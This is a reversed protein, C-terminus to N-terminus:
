SLNYITGARKLSSSVAGNPQTSSGGLRAHSRELMDHVETSVIVAFRELDHHNKTPTPSFPRECEISAAEIGLLAFAILLSLPITGWQWDCAYVIPIACLTLLLFSRLHAVYVYPLPTGQIRELGGMPVGLGQISQILQRYMAAEMPSDPLRVGPSAGFASHVAVEGLEILTLPRHKAEQVMELTAADGFVGDCMSAFADARSDSNGWMHLMLAVPFAVALECLQDRARQDVPGLTANAALAIDRCHIIVWGCLQRAEYHRVAARNLRFVLLFSLCSLVLAFATKGHEFPECAGDDAAYMRYPTFGCAFLLVVLMPQWIRGLGRNRVDLIVSVWEDKSYLRTARAPRSARIASHRSDASSRLRERLPPTLLEGVRMIPNAPRETMAELITGVM